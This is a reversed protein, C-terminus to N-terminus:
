KDEMYANYGRWYERANPDVGNRVMDTYDGDPISVTQNVMKEIEVPGDAQKDNHLFQAYEYGYDYATKMDNEM